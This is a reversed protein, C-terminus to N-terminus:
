ILLDEYDNRFHELSSNVLKVAGDVLHCKGSGPLLRCLDEIQDLDSGAGKEYYIKSILQSLYYTGTKCSPCQGCSGASFFDVYESVHKVVNTSNSIIIMAGTGLSAGRNILSEFDLRVDIDKDTLMSNSPGGTFIAKLSQGPLLGKGYDNILESLQVGMPLEYVGPSLIDGSLTYLKTGSAEGQGLDKFWQAGNRIIHPVHCLTEINNIITPSNYLGNESPYPPKGKPFPFRGEITEIVATEEGGIYYGSSEVISYSLEMNLRKLMAIYIESAQWQSLADTMVQICNKLHPNIYFIVHSIGCAIATITAGEILQYPTEQILVRDKFTGPEDENGNCILYKKEAKNDAVDQWKIYAPFGSGGLGLLKADRILPIVADPEELAIALGKGGWGKLWANIGERSRSNANLLVQNLIQDTM